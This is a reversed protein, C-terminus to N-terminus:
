FQIFGYLIMYFPIFDFLVVYIQIFGFLKTYTPHSKDPECPEGALVLSKLTGAKAQMAGYFSRKEEAVREARGELGQWM